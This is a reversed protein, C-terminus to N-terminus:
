RGDPTRLGGWKDQVADLHAAPDYVKVAVGLSKADLTGYASLLGYAGVVRQYQERKLSGLGM